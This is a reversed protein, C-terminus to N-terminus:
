NIKSFKESDIFISHLYRTMILKDNIKFEHSEQMGLVDQIMWEHFNAGAKITLDTGGGFRCHMDIVYPIGNNDEIVQINMPGNTAFKESVLKGIKLLNEKMQIKAIVVEADRVKIRERPVVCFGNLKRDTYTDITYHTGEIYEQIIPNPTIKVFLKLQERDEAKHINMNGAGDYPKIIVPFKKVDNVSLYTRPTPINHRCLFDNTKRKDYCIEFKEKEPILIKCDLQEIDRKINNIYKFDKNNWLIIGKINDEKIFKLLEGKFGRDEIKPLVKFCKVAYAIPDLKDTDSSVIEYEKYYRQLYKDMVKAIFVRRRANLLLIHKKM